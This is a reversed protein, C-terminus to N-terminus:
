YPRKGVWNGPPDYTCVWVERNGRQAVGCGVKKTDRWVIQTYHGCMGRCQNSRYDYHRAESAWGAVVQAPPTTTGTTEYLNEGFASHPTHVFEGRAVLREAWKQSVAALQDSWELPAVGVKARVDNHASLM